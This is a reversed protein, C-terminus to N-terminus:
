SCSPSACVFHHGLSCIPLEINWIIFLNWSKNSPENFKSILSEHVLFRKFYRMVSMHLYDEWRFKNRRFVGIIKQHPIPLEDQTSYDRYSSLTSFERPSVVRSIGLATPWLPRVLSPFCVLVSYLLSHWHLLLRWQQTSGSWVCLTVLPSVNGSGHKRCQHRYRFSPVLIFGQDKVNSKTLIKDWCSTPITKWDKWCSGFLCM